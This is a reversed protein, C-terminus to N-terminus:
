SGDRGAAVKIKELLVTTHSYKMDSDCTGCIPTGNDLFSPHVVEKDECEPCEFHLSVVDDSVVYDHNDSM